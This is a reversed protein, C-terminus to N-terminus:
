KKSFGGYKNVAVKKAADRVYAAFVRPDDEAIDWLKDLQALSLNDIWDRMFTPLRKLM